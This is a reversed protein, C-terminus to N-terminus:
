KELMFLIVKEIVVELDKQKSTLSFSKKEKKYKSYDIHKSIDDFNKTSKMSNSYDELFEKEIKKM